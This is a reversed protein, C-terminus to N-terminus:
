RPEAIPQMCVSVMEAFAPIQPSRQEVFYQLNATSESAPTEAAYIVSLSNAGATEGKIREIRGEASGCHVELAPLRKEIRGLLVAECGLTERM